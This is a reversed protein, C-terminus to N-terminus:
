LKEFFDYLDTGKLDSQTMERAIRWNERKNWGLAADKLREFHGLASYKAGMASKVAQDTFYNETARRKLVHCPINLRKCIDVFDQRNTSISGGDVDLESDILANINDSIRTLEALEGECHRNILEDGGMPVLVIKHDKKWLRLFQQITKVETRGEVLLVKDFGLVRYNSYSLEGLFESLRPTEEYATVISDGLEIKQVAYIRDAASRALGINHTAFFVGERAYSAITTLFDLQLSPHLSLEPEDILIFASNAVSANALVIIFQALGSGLEQLGYSKGNVFLKFTQEDASPIISLDDFEFIRQIDKTLKYTADNTLKSRGAQLERWQKILSQGTKIDYYDENSGVNVANRFPGIYLTNSLVGMLEFFGNISFTALGEPTITTGDSSVNMRQPQLTLNDPLTIRASCWMTDRSITLRLKRAPHYKSIETAIFDIEVEIDRDNYNCLVESQDLTGLPSYVFPSGQLLQELDPRGKLRTFLNRAEYFFRLLSSKGSNNVGVFSTLGKRIAIRAPQQFCRYNKLTIDFDMHTNPNSTTSSADSEQQGSLVFGINVRRPQSSRLRASCLACKLANGSTEFSRPVCAGRRSFRTAPRNHAFFGPEDGPKKRRAVVQFSAM